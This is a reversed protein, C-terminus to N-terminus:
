KVIKIQFKQGKIRGDRLKKFATEASEASVAVYSFKDQIEIKGIDSANLGGSEGTLAGLIDGPRLKDKRGGSISLTQMSSSRLKKDLGYQNKFGLTPREMKSKAFTELELIKLTDRPDAFTIALGAKGARGTRGIRHLYTEPQAPLDFNIVLELNEIDLGRAAVDTAILIRYSGNRFLAMVRDRERQDLDGHLCGCSVNQKQLTEFIENVTSKMNCFVLTSDSPHQQLVRILTNIKSKEDTEYVLQKISSVSNEAEEIKVSVPNKQYKRSLSQITEPFTASFFATQRKTPLAQLLAVIEDQFGMDLMKDAEDLVLTEIFQFDIRGRDLLDLVRGPTGVAIHVGNDLAEAQMRAPQGGVLALVKLGEHRRGLKRFENVVQTALERTPCLILAQLINEKVKIKNLIPLAFAATKGSGTKSQGILDKGALLVPISETQIPTLKDYGLENLVTSLESRLLLSNFNTQM